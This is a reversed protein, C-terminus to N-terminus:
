CCVLLVCYANVAAVARSVRYRASDLQVALRGGISEDLVPFHHM